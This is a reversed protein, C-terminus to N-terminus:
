CLESDAVFQQIIGTQLNMATKMNNVAAQEMANTTSRSSMIYLVGLCVVAIIIAGIAVVTSMKRNKRIM